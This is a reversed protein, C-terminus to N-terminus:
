MRRCWNLPLQEAYVAAQVGFNATLGGVFEGVQEM